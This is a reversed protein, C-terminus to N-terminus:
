NWQREGERASAAAAAPTARGATTRRSGFAASPEDSLWRAMVEFAAPGDGALFEDVYPLAAAMGRALPAYGPSGKLPNAWLVMHAVRSLRGMERAVLDPDGRDIGDSCIVVIASRAAGRVGFRDNFECLTAGLRTGGSFDPIAAGAAALAVQPDRGSLARTLRTLRTGLAFVEVRTRRQALAYAFRLIAPVYPEMSGSVDCLVAVRRALRRRRRYHLEILEGDARLSCGISRRLDLRTTRGASRRYRRTLVTAPSSSLARVLRAVETADAPELASRDAASLRESPSYRLGGPAVGDAEGIPSEAPVAAPTPFASPPPREDLFFRAFAADYTAFDEPDGTFLARGAVYLSSRELKGLVLLAQAFGAVASTPATVDRHRLEAAFSAALRAATELDSIAPRLGDAATM